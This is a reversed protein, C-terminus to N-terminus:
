PVFTQLAARLEWPVFAKLELEVLGLLLFEKKKKL